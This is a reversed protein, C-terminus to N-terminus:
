RRLNVTARDREAKESDGQLDYAAARLLYVDEKSFQSGSFLNQEIAHTFDAIAQESNALGELYVQGRLAFVESMAYYAKFVGASVDLGQQIDALAQEPQGMRQYIEARHLWSAYKEPEIEILKNADTLAASFRGLDMNSYCRYGLVNKDNPASELVYDFDSIAEEFRKLRRRVDGRLKWVTRDGSDPQMRILESYSEEAAENRRNDNQWQAIAQM